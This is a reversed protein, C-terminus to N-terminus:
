DGELEAVRAELEDRERRLAEADQAGHDHGLILGVGLGAAVGALVGQEPTLIGARITAGMNPATTDGILEALVGIAAVPNDICRRGGLDEIWRQGDTNLRDLLGDATMPPHQMYPKLSARREEDFRHWAHRWDYGTM